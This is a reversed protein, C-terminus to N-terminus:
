QIDKKNVKIYGNSLIRRIDTKDCTGIQAAKKWGKHTKIDNALMKPTPTISGAYLWLSDPAVSNWVKAAFWACNCRPTHQNNARMTNQVTNLQSYTLNISLSVRSKYAGKYKIKYAELNTYIGTGFKDKQNGFTGITISGNPTVPVGLVYINSNTKNRISLFAHCGTDVTFDTSSSGIGGTPDAHITLTAVTAAAASAKFKTVSFSGICIAIALTFALVVRLAKTIISDSRM